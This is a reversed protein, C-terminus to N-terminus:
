ECWSTAVKHIARTKEGMADKTSHEVKGGNVEDVPVTGTLGGCLVDVDTSVLSAM